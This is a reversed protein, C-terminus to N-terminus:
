TCFEWLCSQVFMGGGASQAFNGIISNNKIKSTNNNIAYCGIGGGYNAKNNSIISSDIIAQAMNLDIDIGGARLNLNSLSNNDHINCNSIKIVDTTPFSNPDNYFIIGTTSNNRVECNRIYPFSASIRIAGALYVSNEGAYEVLCYEMISGTFLTYDYDESLDSFLLYSWYGPTPTVQNSTFTIKNSSNGIARLNGKIQLSKTSDFKVIVGPDITLVIGSDLVTNGIIIYPSGALTWNTNSSIFGSVNTQANMSSSTLGIILMGFVFFLKKM